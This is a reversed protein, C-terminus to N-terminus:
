SRKKELKGKGKPGSVKDEDRQKDVGMAVEIEGAEIGVALGDDLTRRISAHGAEDSDAGVKGGAPGGESEGVLVGVDERCDANVRSFHSCGGVVSAIFEFAESAVRLHDGEALATEVVM